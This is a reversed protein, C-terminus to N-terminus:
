RKPPRRKAATPKVPSGKAKNPTAATRKVITYGLYDLLTSASEFSLSDTEGRLFRALSPQNVGTAKAVANVSPVAALEDRLIQTLSLPKRPKPMSKGQLM